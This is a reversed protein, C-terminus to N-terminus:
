LEFSSDIVAATFLVKGDRHGPPVYFLSFLQRGRVDLWGLGCYSSALEQVVGPPEPACAVAAPSRATTKKIIKPVWSCLQVPVWCLAPRVKAGKDAIAASNAVTPPFKEM